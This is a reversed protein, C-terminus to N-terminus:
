SSVHLCMWFLLLPVDQVCVPLMGARLREGIAADQVNGPCLGSVCASVDLVAVLACGACMKSVDGFVIVAGATERVRGPCMGSVCGSVDM